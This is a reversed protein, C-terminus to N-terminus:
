AVTNRAAQAARWSSAPGLRRASSAANRGAASLRCSVGVCGAGLRAIHTIMANNTAASVQLMTPWTSMTATALPRMTILWRLLSIWGSSVETTRAM